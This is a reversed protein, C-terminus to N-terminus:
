QQTENRTELTQICKNLGAISNAYKPVVEPDHHGANTMMDVMTRLGTLMAKAEVYVNPLLVMNPDNDRAEMKIKKTKPETIQNGAVRKKGTKFVGEADEDKVMDRKLCSCVKTGVQRRGYVRGFQDELTFIIAIARRNIGSACSSKCVFKYAHTCPDLTTKNFHVVVSYWSDLAEADGCYYVGQTGFERSSHLVNKAVEKPVTPVDPFHQRCREVRKQAQEADSFVVVARVFMDAGHVRAPDWNFSLSFDCNMDVYIRDLRHSYLFKKKHTDNSNVEVLFNSAHSVNTSDPPGRASVPKFTKLDLAKYEVDLTEDSFQLPGLNPFLVDIDLQPSDEQVVMPYSEFQTPYAM